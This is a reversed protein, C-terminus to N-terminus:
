SCLTGRHQTMPVGHGKLRLTVVYGPLLVIFPTHDNPVPVPTINPSAGRDADLPRAGATHINFVHLISINVGKHGFAFWDISFITASCVQSLEGVDPGIKRIVM